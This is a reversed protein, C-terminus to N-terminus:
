DVGKMNAGGKSAPLKDMPGSIKKTESQLIMDKSGFEGQKRRPPKVGQASQRSHNDKGSAASGMLSDVVKKRISSSRATQGGGGSINTANRTPASELKAAIRKASDTSFGM